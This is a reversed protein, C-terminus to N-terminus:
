AARRGAYVMWGRVVLYPPLNQHAFGGGQAQNTVTITGAINITGDVDHIHGPDTITVTQVTAGSVVKRLNITAGTVTAPQPDYSFSASIGTPHTLATLNHNAVLSHTATSGPHAHSPMENIGLLVTELGGVAGPVALTGSASMAFISRGVATPLKLREGSSPVGGVDGIEAVLEPWKVRLVEAGNLLLWGPKPEQEGTLAAVPGLFPSLMGPHFPTLAMREIAAIREELKALDVAPGPEEISDGM